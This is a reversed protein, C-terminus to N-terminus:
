IQSRERMIGWASMQTWYLICFNEMKQLKHPFDKGLECYILWIRDQTVIYTVKKDRWSLLWLIRGFPRQPQYSGCWLRGRQFGGARVQYRGSSSLPFFKNDPQTKVSLPPEARAVRGIHCWIVRQAFFRFMKQGFLIYTLTNWRWRLHAGSLNKLLAARHAPACLKLAKKLRRRKTSKKAFCSFYM